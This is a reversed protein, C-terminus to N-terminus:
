NEKETMNKDVEQKSEESDTSNANGGTAADAVKAIMGGITGGGAMVASTAAVAGTGASQLVSFVGTTYAGYVVSQAGAAISGGAVGAATFGVLPLMAPAAIAGAVIGVKGKNNKAYEYSKKANLSTKCRLCCSTHYKDIHEEESEDESLNQKCTSCRFKGDTQVTFLVAIIEGCNKCEPTRITNNSHLM